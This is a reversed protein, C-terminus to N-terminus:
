FPSSALYGVPPLAPGVNDTLILGRKLTAGPKSFNEFRPRRM